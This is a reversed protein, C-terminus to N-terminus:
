GVTVSTSGLNANDSRYIYYDETYGYANQYSITDVLTFGGTFGGVTFSCTGYRKPLCYWIYQGEGANVNFSPLKNSRLTKTLTRIFASDLTEPIAAVGYYVGSTFSITAPKTVSFGREDTVQLTYTKNEKVNGALTTFSALETSMAQGDLIISEAQKNLQWSWTIQQVTEGNEATSPSVTFSKISIPEYKIDAINKNIGEIAEFLAQDRSESLQELRIVNERTIECDNELSKIKDGTKKAEAAAGQVSLTDDIRISQLFEDIEFRINEKLEEIDANRQEEAESRRQEAENRVIEATKREAEATQREAEAKIIADIVLVDEDKRDIDDSNIVRDSVIMTFRPSGIVGGDAHYLIVACDHVGEVAATNENQAFDYKIATNNEIACFAELHTGTPRKIEIKALCGDEIVYPISGDSLSIHLVRATDGLTIPLSVQSQTKHLDLTFRYNSSNM